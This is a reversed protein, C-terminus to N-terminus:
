DPARRGLNIRNNLGIARRSIRIRHGWRQRSRQICVLGISIAFLIHLSIEYMYHHTICIHRYQLELEFQSMTVLLRPGKSTIM